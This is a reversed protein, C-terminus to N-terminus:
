PGTEGRISHAPTGDPSLSAHRTLETKYKTMNYLASHSFPFVAATVTDTDTPGGTHGLAVRSTWQGTPGRSSTAPEQHADDAPPRAAASGVQRPDVGPDVLEGGPDAAMDASVGSGNM